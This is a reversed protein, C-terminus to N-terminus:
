IKRKKSNRRSPFTSSTAEIKGDQSLGLITLGQANGSMLINQLEKKIEEDALAKKLLEDRIIFDYKKM